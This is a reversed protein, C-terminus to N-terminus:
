RLKMLLVAVAALLAAMLTLMWGSLTPIAAAAANVVTISATAPVAGFSAPLTATITVPGGVAVGTVQFTASHQGALITVTAPVTAITTDSSVLTVITDTAQTINITATETATSGVVVQRSPPSLTITVQTPSGIVLTYAQSGTCTNADTATITIPFSGSVTPTGSLLGGTTLTIGAPLTGTTVAFTYPAQGGVASIQQSYATGQSGGPLTPPSLTITPCVAGCSVFIKGGGNANCGSSPDGEQCDQEPDDGGVMYVTALCGASSFQRRAFSPHQAYISTVAGGSIVDGNAILKTSGGALTWLFAGEGVNDAEHGESAGDTEDPGSTTGTVYAVQNANNISIMEGALSPPDATGGSAVEHNTGDWFYFATNNDGNYLAGYVVNGTNNIDTWAQISSITKGNVVDGVSVITVTTAPPTFRFLHDVGGVTARYVVQDSDNINVRPAIATVGAVGTRAVQTSVGPATFNFVGQTGDQLNLVVPVHGSANMHGDITEYECGGCNGQAVTDDDAGFGIVTSGGVSSGQAVLVASTGGTNLVLSHDNEDCEEVESTWTVTGDTVTQGPSTPWVPETAGTTGGSGSTFEMNNDTTPYMIFFSSPIVTNPTWVAGHERGYGDFLIQGADNMATMSSFGCMKRTGVTTGNAILKTLAGAGPGATFIGSSSEDDNRLFGMSEARFAVKGSANMAYFESWGMLQEGNGGPVLDGEAAITTEAGGSARSSLQMPSCGTFAGPYFGIAKWTIGNDNVTAGATVPWVPETAGSTGANQAQFLFGIRYVSPTAPAAVMGAQYARGPAWTDGVNVWTITGDVVTGGFAAPWAPEVAGTTGATTAMFKNGGFTSLPVVNDHLAHVTNPQWEASNRPDADCSAELGIFEKTYVVTGAANIVLSARGAYPPGVADIVNPNKGTTRQAKWAAHHRGSVSMAGKGKAHPPPGGHDPDEARAMPGMFLAAVAAILFLPWSNSRMRRPSM